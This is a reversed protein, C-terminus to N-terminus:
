ISGGTKGKMCIIHRDELRKLIDTIEEKEHFIPAFPVVQTLDFFGQETFYHGSKKFMIENQKVLWMVFWEEFTFNETNGGNEDLFDVVELWSSIELYQCLEILTTNKVNFKAKM